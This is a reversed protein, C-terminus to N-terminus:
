ALLNKSSSRPSRWNVAVYRRVGPRGCCSVPRELRRGLHTMRGWWLSSSKPCWEIRLLILTRRASLWPPITDDERGQDHRSSSEIKQWALLYVRRSRFHDTTPCRFCWAAWCPLPHLHGSSHARVTLILQATSSNKLKYWKMSTLWSKSNRVDPLFNFSITVDKVLATRVCTCWSLNSCNSFGAVEACARATTSM